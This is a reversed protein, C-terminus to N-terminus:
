MSSVIEIGWWCNGCIFSTHTTTSDGESVFVVCVSSTPRTEALVTREAHDYTLRVGLERYVETKDAPSPHRLATLLGGLTDVLTHIDDRSMRRNTGHRSALTALRAKAVTRQQQV